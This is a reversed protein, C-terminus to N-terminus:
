LYDPDDMMDLELDFDELMFDEALVEEEEGIFAMEELLHDMVEEEDLEFSERKLKGKVEDVKGKVKDQIERKKEALERKREDRFAARVDDRKNLYKEATGADGNASKAAGKGDMYATGATAAVVLASVGGVIGATVKLGTLVEQKHQAAKESSKSAVAKIGDKCSKIVSNCQKKVDGLGSKIKGVVSNVSEGKSALKKGDKVIDKEITGKGTVKRLKEAVKEKITEFIVRAEDIKDEFWKKLKALASSIKASLKQDQELLMELNM